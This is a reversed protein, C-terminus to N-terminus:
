LKDNNKNQKKNRSREDRLEKQKQIVKFFLLFLDIKEKKKVAAHM